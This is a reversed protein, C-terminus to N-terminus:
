VNGYTNLIICYDVTCHAYTINKFMNGIIHEFSTKFYGIEKKLHM